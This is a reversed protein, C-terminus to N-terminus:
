SQAPDVSQFDPEHLLQEDLNPDFSPPWKKV